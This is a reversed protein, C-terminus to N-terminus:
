RPGGGLLWLSALAIFIGTGTVFGAIPPTWHDAADFKALVWHACEQRSAGLLASLMLGTGAGMLMNVDM